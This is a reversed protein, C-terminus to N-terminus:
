VSDRGLCVCRCRPRHGQQRQGAGTGHLQTHGHCRRDADPRARGAEQGLRLGDGKAGRGGDAACQGAEFRSSDGSGSASGAHSAGIDGGVASSSKAEWPTGDLKDARSGGACYELSFYPTGQHEGVEFVQVIHPHHLRVVAEAEIQFRLREQEGAYSHLIMKLAVVRNLKTQRAKYLIGMGCKGLIGLVEYGPVTPADPLLSPPPPTPSQSDPPLTACPDVTAAESAVESSQPLVTPTEHVDQALADLQQLAAIQRELAPLLEPHDRCLDAATVTEGNACHHQWLSLLNALTSEPDLSATNMLFGM